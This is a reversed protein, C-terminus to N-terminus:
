PEVALHALAFDVVAAGEQIRARNRCLDDGRLIDDRQSFLRPAARVYQMHAMGVHGFQDAPRLFPADADGALGARM